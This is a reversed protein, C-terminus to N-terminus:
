GLLNSQPMSLEKKSQFLSDENRTFMISMEAEAMRKIMDAVQMAKSSKPYLFDWVANRMVEYKDLVALADRKNKPNVIRQNEICWQKIRNNVVDQSINLIRNRMSHFEAYPNKNGKYESVFIDKHISEQIQCNELYSFFAKLKMMAEIQESTWLEGQEVKNDLSILWQRYAKSKETRAVMCLEKACNITVMYDKRARTTKKIEVDPLSEFYDKNKDFFLLNSKVWRSYVNRALGLGDYLEIISVLNNKLNLM